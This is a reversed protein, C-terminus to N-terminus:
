PFKEFPSEQRIKQLKLENGLIEAREAQMRALRAHLAFENQDLSKDRQDREKAFSAEIDNRSGYLVNQQMEPEATTKVELKDNKKCCCRRVALVMIVVLLVIVLGGGVILWLNADQLLPQISDM